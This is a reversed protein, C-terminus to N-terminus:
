HTKFDNFPTKAAVACYIELLAQRTPHSEEVARFTMSRIRKRARGSAEAFGPLRKLKDTGAGYDAKYGLAKSIMLRLLAAKNIQQSRHARFRKPINDSRGVYFPKGKESFLYVGKLPLKTGSIYPEAGILAEYKPHLSEVAAKFKQNM